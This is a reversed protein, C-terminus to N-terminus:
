KRNFLMNIINQFINTKKQIPMIENKIETEKVDKKFLDNTKINPKALMNNFEELEEETECIYDRYILALLAKTQYKLENEKLEKTFDIKSVYTKSKKENLKKIIDLPIKSITYEDLHQLVDLVEVMAESYEEIEMM